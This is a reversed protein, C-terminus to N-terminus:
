HCLTQNCYIMESNDNDDKLLEQFTFAMSITTSFFSKEMYVRHKHKNKIVTVIHLFSKWPLHYDLASFDQLIM